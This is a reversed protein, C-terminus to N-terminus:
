LRPLKGPYNAFRPFSPKLIGSDQVFQRFGHWRIFVPRLWKVLVAIGDTTGM